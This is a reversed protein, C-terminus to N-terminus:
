SLSEDHNMRRKQKIYDEAMDKVTTEDLVGNIRNQLKLWLPRASCTCANECGTAEYGVCDVLSTTGELATLVQRVTILEPSRSLVYGGQVGRVSSILGAKRLSAILQELYALSIGQQAALTAASVPGNGYEVALDVMAKIGYRAKTSLKM